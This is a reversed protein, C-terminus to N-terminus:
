DQEDDEKEEEETIDVGHIANWALSHNKDYEM